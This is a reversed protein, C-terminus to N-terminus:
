LREKKFKTCEVQDIDMLIEDSDGKYHLKRFDFDQRYYRRYAGPFNGITLSNGQDMESTYVM